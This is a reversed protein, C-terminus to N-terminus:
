AWAWACSCSMAKRCPSASGTPTLARKGPEIIVPAQIAALLDLGEGHPLHRIKM